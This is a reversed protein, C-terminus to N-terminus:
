EGAESISAKKLSVSDIRPGEVYCLCLNIICDLCAPTRVDESFGLSSGLLEAKLGTRSSEHM